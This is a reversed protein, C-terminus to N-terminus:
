SQYTQRDGIVHQEEWQHSLRVKIERGYVAVMTFSLALNHNKVSGVWKYFRIVGFNQVLLKNKNNSLRAAKKAM